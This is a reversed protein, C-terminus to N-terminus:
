ELRKEHTKGGYALIDFAKCIRLAQETRQPVKHRQPIRITFQPEMCPIEGHYELDPQRNLFFNKRAHRPYVM